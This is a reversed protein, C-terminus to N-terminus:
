LAASKLTAKPYFVNQLRIRHEEKDFESISVLDLWCQEIHRTDFHKRAM